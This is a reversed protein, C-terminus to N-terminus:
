NNLINLKNIVISSGNEMIKGRNNGIGIEKGVINRRDYMINRRNGRKEM